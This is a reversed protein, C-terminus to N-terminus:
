VPPRLIWFAQKRQFGNPLYTATMIVFCNPPSHDQTIPSTGEARAGLYLSSYELFPTDPIAPPPPRSCSSQYKPFKPLDLMDRGNDLSTQRFCRSLPFFVSQSYPPDTVCNIVGQGCQPKWQSHRNVGM